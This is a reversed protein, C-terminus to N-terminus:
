VCLGAHEPARTRTTATALMVCPACRRIESSGRTPTADLARVACPPLTGRVGPTWIRGTVQRVGARPTVRITVGTTVRPRTVLVKVTVLMTVVHRCSISGRVHAPVPRAPRRRPGQCDRRDSRWLLRWLLRWLDGPPDWRRRRPLRLRDDAAIPRPGTVLPDRPHRALLLLRDQGPHSTRSSRPGSKVSSARLATSAMPASPRPPAPFQGNGALENVATRGVGAVAASAVPPM